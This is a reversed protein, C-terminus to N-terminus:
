VGRNPSYKVFNLIHFTIEEAKPLSNCWYPILQPFMEELSVINYSSNYYIVEPKVCRSENHSKVRHGTGGGVSM